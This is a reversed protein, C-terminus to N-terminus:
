KIIELLQLTSSGWEFAVLKYDDVIAFTSFDGGQPLNIQEKQAWNNGEFEYTFITNTITDERGDMDMTSTLLYLKDNFLRSCKVIIEASARPKVTSGGSASSRVTLGSPKKFFIRKAIQPNESLEFTDTLKWDKNLLEIVPPNYNMVSLFQGKYLFLDRGMSSKAAGELAMGSTRQKRQIDYKSIDVMPDAITTYHMTNAHILPRNVVPAGYIFPSGVLVGEQSFELVKMLRSDLVYFNQTKESDLLYEPREIENPGMGKEGFKSIFNFELDLKIIATLGQDILYINGGKILIDSVKAVFHETSYEQIEKLVKTEFTQQSYSQKHSIIALCFLVAILVRHSKNSETM